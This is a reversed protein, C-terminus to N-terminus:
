NITHSIIEFRDIKEKTSLIKEYALAKAQKEDEAMVSVTQVSDASTRIKFIHEREPQHKVPLHKNTRWSHIVKVNVGQKEAIEKESFGRKWLEMREYYIGGPLYGKELNRNRFHTPLNNKKRWYRVANEGIYLREGIERDSLGENYLELRETQEEETLVRRKRRERRNKFKNNELSKRRRWYRVAAVTIGLTEAIEYDNLGDEYLELRDASRKHFENNCPLNFKDRWHSIASIGVCVRKGIEGDSYGQLYYHMRENHEEQTLM